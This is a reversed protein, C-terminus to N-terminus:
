VNVDALTALTANALLKAASETLNLLSTSNTDTVPSYTYEKIIDLISLYSGFVMALVGFLFVSANKYLLWNGPGFGIDWYTIVEIVVPFVIGLLSFCLAGILGVFPGITPVAVALLVPFFCFITTFKIIFIGLRWTYFTYLVAGFIPKKFM